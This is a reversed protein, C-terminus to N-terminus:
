TVVAAEDSSWRSASGKRHCHCRCYLCVSFAALLNGLIAQAPHLLGQVEGQKRQITESFLGVAINKGMKMLM